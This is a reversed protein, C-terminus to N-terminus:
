PSDAAADGSGVAKAEPEHRLVAWFRTEGVRELGPVAAQLEALNRRKTVLLARPHLAFFAAPRERPFVMEPLRPENSPFNYDSPAYRDIVYVPEVGYLVLFRPFGAWAAVVEGPQRYAQVLEAVPRGETEAV